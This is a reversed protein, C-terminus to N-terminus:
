FDSYYYALKDMIINDLLNIDSYVNIDLALLKQEIDTASESFFLTPLHFYSGALCQNHATLYDVTYEFIRQQILVSQALSSVKFALPTSWDLYQGQYSALSQTLPESTGQYSVLAQALAMSADIVEVNAPLMGEIKFRQCSTATLALPLETCGLVVSTCGQTAIEDTIVECLLLEAQKTIKATKIGFSPNYIAEMIKTQNVVSPQTATMGKATLATQYLGSEVLSNVGMVLVTDQCGQLSTATQNIMDVFAVPINPLIRRFLEHASNCALGIHDVDLYQMLRLTYVATDFKRLEPIDTSLWQQMVEQPKYALRANGFAVFQYDRDVPLSTMKVMLDVMAENGMGGIIGIRPQKFNDKIKM